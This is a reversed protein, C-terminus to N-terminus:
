YRLNHETKLVVFVLVWFLLLFLVIIKAIVSPHIVSVYFFISAYRTSMTTLYLGQLYAIDLWRVPVM